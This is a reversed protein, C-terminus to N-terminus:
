IQGTVDLAVLFAELPVGTIFPLSPFIHAREPLFRSVQNRLIRLLSLYEIVKKGWDKGALAGAVSGLDCVAFAHVPLIFFQGSYSFILNSVM